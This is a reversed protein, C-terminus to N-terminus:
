ATHMIAAAIYWSLEKNNVFRHIINIEQRAALSNYLILGM